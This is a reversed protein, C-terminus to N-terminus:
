VNNLTKKEVNPYLKDIEAQIQITKSIATVVLCYHRIDEHSLIRGKRDKLWKNSVQYGGIHYTWVEPQVDTFYQTENIYVMKEKEDYLPKEVRNNGKGIFRCIPKDLEPSKLLHLDSIKKGLKAMKSFIVEDSTFPIRPFDIKLFESYKRRFINSYSVAYLYFVMERPSKIFDPIVRYDINVRKKDGEVLSFLDDKTIDPYLYLPAIYSVGAGASKNGVACQDIIIESVLLSFEYNPSHPRTFLLGINSKIMPGLVKKVTRWVLSDHYFIWRTDFPRYLVPLCYDKIESDSIGQLKEWAKRIDWGKKKRINFGKHLMDDSFDSNKFLRIRNILTNKDFDIVFADRATTM